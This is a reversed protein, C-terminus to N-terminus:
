RGVLCLVLIALTVAVSVYILITAAFVLWARWNNGRQLDRKMKLTWELEETQSPAPNLIYFHVTCAVVLAGLLVVIDSVGLILFVKMPMNDTCMPAITGVLFSVAFIMLPVMVTLRNISSSIERSREMEYSYQLRLVDLTPVVPASKKAQEKTGKSKAQEPAKKEGSSAQLDKDNEPQQPEDMASQKDAQPQKDTVPQLNRKLEKATSMKTVTM